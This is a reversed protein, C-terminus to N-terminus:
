AGIRILLYFGLLTLVTAWIWYRPAVKSTTPLAKVVPEIPQVDRGCHKCVKAEDRILEACSPCKRRAALHAASPNVISVLLLAVFPLLLGLWYWVFGRRGKSKAIFSTMAAQSLWIFLVVAIFAAVAM